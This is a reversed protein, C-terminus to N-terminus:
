DNFKIWGRRTRTHFHGEFSRSPLPVNGREAIRGEPVNLNVTYATGSILFSEGSGDEHAISKVSIEYQSDKSQIRVTRSNIPRKDAFAMILDWKSPGNSINVRANSM